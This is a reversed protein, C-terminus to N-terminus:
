KEGWRYNFAPISIDSLVSRKDIVFFGRKLDLLLLIGLPMGAKKVSFPGVRVAITVIIPLRCISVESLNAQGM